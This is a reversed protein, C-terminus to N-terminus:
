EIQFKRIDKKDHCGLCIRANQKSIRLRKHSDAGVDARQRRQVGLEHPNHCTGCFVNGTVLELPLIADNANETINSQMEDSPKGSHYIPSGDSEYGMVCGYAYAEDTHCRLCLKDFKNNVFAVDAISKAKRRDPTKDHCYTCVDTMLEGEDNIQDHPNFKRYNSQDHCHYCMDTRKEYPAGRHFRPNDQKRHYEESLCQYKMEHCVYCTIRGQPDKELAGKFDEPMRDIMNQPPVMGSAHIYKDKSIEGHCRNCLATIDGKFKLNLAEGKHPVKEHCELCDRSNLSWHPNQYIVDEAFSLTGFLLLVGAIILCVGSRVMIERGEGM